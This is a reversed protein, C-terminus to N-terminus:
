VHAVHAVEGKSTDLSRTTRIESLGNPLVRTFCPSFFTQAFKQIHRRVRFYPTAKLHLNEIEHYM